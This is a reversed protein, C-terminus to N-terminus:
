IPALALSVTANEIELILVASRPALTKCPFATLLVAKAARVLRVILPMETVTPAWDEMSLTMLAILLLLPSVLAVAILFLWVTTSSVPNMAKVVAAAVCVKVNFPTVMARLVPLASALEVNMAVTFPKVFWVPTAAAVVETPIVKVRPFPPM